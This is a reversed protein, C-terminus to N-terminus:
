ASTSTPHVNIGLVVRGVAPVQLNIKGVTEDSKALSRLLSLACDGQEDILHLIEGLLLQTGQDHRHM